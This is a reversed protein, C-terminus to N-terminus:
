RRGRRILTDYGWEKLRAALKPQAAVLQDIEARLDDALVVQELDIDPEVLRSFASAGGSPDTGLVIRAM